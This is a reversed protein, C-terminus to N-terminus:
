PQTTENITEEIDYGTVSSVDWGESECLGVIADEIREDESVWFSTATKDTFQVRVLDYVM